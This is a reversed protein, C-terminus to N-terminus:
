LREDEALEHIVRPTIFFLLESNSVERRKSRFLRGIIPLESLLPLKATTFTDTRRMLGGLVVTRGNDVRVTTMISRDTTIPASVAGDPSTATGAQESFTPNLFLTVSDDANIRPTVFLQSGVQVDPGRQYVVNRGGGVDIMITPEFTPISQQVQILAPMNNGAIVWPRNVVEARSENLMTTLAVRFQGDVYGIDMNGTGTGGTLFTAYLSSNQLTWSLGVNENHALLVDVVMVEIAVQKIPKDLLRILERLEDIGEQTGRVLIVNQELIGVPPSVGPPLEFVTGGFGGYGFGGYGYGGYGGWGGYGGYGGWGGYGGYGGWGGYGGGWGGYGLGGGWFQPASSPSGAYAGGMLMSAQDAFRAAHVPQPLSALYTLRRQNNLLQSSPIEVGGFMRALQGADFYDLEITAFVKEEESAPGAPKEEPATASTEYSTVNTIETGSVFEETPRIGTTGRTTGTATEVAHFPGSVRIVKDDKVVQLGKQAAIEDLIEEATMGRLCMYHIQENKLDDSLFLGKDLFPKLMLLVEDVRADAVEIDLPEGPQAPEIDQVAPTKIDVAGETTAAALAAAQACVLAAVTAGFM